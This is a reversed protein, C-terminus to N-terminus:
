YKLTKRICPDFLFAAKSHLPWRTPIVNPAVSYSLFVHPNQRQLEGIKFFTILHQSKQPNYWSKKQVINLVNKCSWFPERMWWKFNILHGGIRDAWEKSELTQCRCIAPPDRRLHNIHCSRYNRDQLKWVLTNAVFANAGNKAFEALVYYNILLMSTPSNKLNPM